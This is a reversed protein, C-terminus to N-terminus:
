CLPQLAKVVSLLLGPDFGPQLVIHTPGVHLILPPASTLAPGDNMSLSTWRVPVSANKFKRLWYKLQEINYGNASCWAAMTKGSAKYDEIRATWEQRRQENSM